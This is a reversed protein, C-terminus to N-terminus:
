SPPAFFASFVYLAATDKISSFINKKIQGLFSIGRRSMYWAKHKVEWHREVNEM